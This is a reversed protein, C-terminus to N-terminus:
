LNQLFGQAGVSDLVRSLQYPLHEHVIHERTMTMWRQGDGNDNNDTLFMGKVMLASIGTLQTAREIGVSCVVLKLARTDLGFDRLIPNLCFAYSRM